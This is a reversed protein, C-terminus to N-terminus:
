APVDAVAVTVNFAGAGAPPAVTCSEEIDGAVTGAVTVTGAPAVVVVKLTPVVLTDDVVCAFIHATSFVVHPVTSVTVGPAVLAGDSAVSDSDGAVTVPPAEDWPVTVSLPGAGDPPATTVSDLLLVATAVTGALTVTAAPLELRVNETAVVVTADVADAVIVAVSPTLRLPTSVTVGDVGVGAAGTGAAGAFPAITVNGTVSSQFSTAL